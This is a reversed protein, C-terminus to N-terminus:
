NKLFYLLIAGAIMSLMGMTRISRRDLQSVSVMARRYSEPSMAPLLGEIVLVLALAIWLETWM